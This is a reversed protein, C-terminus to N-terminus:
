RDSCGLDEDGQVALGFFWADRLGDLATSVVREPVPHGASRRRQLGVIVRWLTPGDRRSVAARVLLELALEGDRGQGILAEVRDSLGLAAPPPAEIEDPPTSGPFPALVFRTLERRRSALTQGPRHRLADIAIADLGALVTGVGVAAEDGPDPLRELADVIPARLAERALRVRDGAETTERLCVLAWSHDCDLIALYTTLAAVAAHQWDEAARMAAFIRPAAFAVAVDYAHVLAADKDAFQAYFANRSMGAREAISTVTAARYGHDAMERVAADTLHARARFALAEDPLQLTGRAGRPAGASDESSM